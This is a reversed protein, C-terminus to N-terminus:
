RQTVLESVENLHNQDVDCIAVVDVNAVQILKFLDSTGYWGAGILGVRKPSENKFYDFGYSNISSLLLSASTGKIFHRRNIM